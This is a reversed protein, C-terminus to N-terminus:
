NADRIEISSAAALIMTRRIPADAAPLWLEAQRPPGAGFRITVVVRRTRLYGHGYGIGSWSSETVSLRADCRPWAGWAILVASRKRLRAGIRSAVQESVRGPPRVVVVAAVDILVAVVELWHEGPDPVLITRELDVGIAEAAEIGFDGAGVVASWLGAQSPGSMLAMVLSANDVSYSGGARLQVLGALASHTALPLRAVGHQINRM